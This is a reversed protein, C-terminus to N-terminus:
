ALPRVKEEYIPARGDLADQDWVIKGKENFHAGEDTMPTVKNTHACEQRSVGMEDRPIWLLPTINTVAPHQYADRETEPSYIIEAFDHPVLKRCMQYSCYLDPRLWKKIFSVKPQGPKSKEGAAKTEEMGNKTNNGFAGDHQHIGEHDALLSQEEAELSRPLYHLLPDIANNLSIHFLIMFVLFIIMLILAAAAYQIGFLGILCIVALYCGVLTHKLAKAYVFGKTDIVSTNVFLLNYRYAIYYLCLGIVAFGMMLPAIPAYTISIM